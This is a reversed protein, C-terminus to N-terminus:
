TATRAVLADVKAVYSKIDCKRELGAANMYRIKGFVPREFWPRDHQGFIWAVNAFSNADRGDLFYKNNLALATAHAGEPSGTWELIKKGWYMRMHNHMYGTFRMERMAANWYPDHTEARELQQRSYLYPRRDASHEALTKQAWNPLSEYRDYAPTFEVWNMSLERRVLLEDLFGLANPDRADLRFKEIELALWMPSIQGFHLYKSMHSVDNTQPQNRNEAYTSLHDRCFARFLGEAITTGGRFFETVAPVSRDLKLERCLANVDDLDYDSKPPRHMRQQLTVPKLQQLFSPTLRTIKPRLTRAAYERKDSAANVPVVVDSEVQVVRCTAAKAVDDRWLKQLRLYGRDCIVCAANRALDLAVASPAGHRIVFGIGREALHQSTERLGELMFTYHRLNAEPYDDTLGFCVLLPLGLENAEQAAFELAHNHRARQSQQMWYLVYRGSVNERENLPWVREPPISSLARRVRYTVCM